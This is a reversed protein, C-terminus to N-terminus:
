LRQSYSKRRPLGRLLRELTRGTLAGVTIGMAVAAAVGAIAHVWLPWGNPVSSLAVVPILVGVLWAGATVWVWRGSGAVTRRLVRWQLYGMSLLGATWAPVMLLLLWASAGSAGLLAGGGMGVFWAFAASAVTARVWDRGDVGPAFRALVRAQAIGIAAGEVMGALTLGVVLVPDPAGLAALGAGTLAPPVFGILEGVLFAM